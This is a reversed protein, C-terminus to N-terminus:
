RSLLILDPVSNYMVGKQGSHDERIATSVLVMAKSIPFLTGHHFVQYWYFFDFSYCYSMVLCLLGLNRLLIWM